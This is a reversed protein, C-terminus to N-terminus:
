SIQQKQLTQSTVTNVGLLEYQNEVDSCKNKIEHFYEKLKKTVFKRITIYMVVIAAVNVLLVTVILSTTLSSSSADTSNKEAESKERIGVVLDNKLQDIRENIKTSLMEMAREIGSINRSVTDSTRENENAQLTLNQKLINVTDVLSDLHASVNSKITDAEDKVFELDSVITASFDSLNTVNTAMSELNNTLNELDRETDNTRGREVNLDRVLSGFHTFLQEIKDDRVMGSRNVYKLNGDMYTILQLIDSMAKKNIKTMYNLNMVQEVIRPMHKQDWDVSWGTTNSWTWGMFYEWDRTTRKGVTWEEWKRYGVQIQDLVTPITVREAAQSKLQPIPCLLLLSIFLKRCM